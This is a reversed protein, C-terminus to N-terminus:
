NSSTLSSHTAKGQLTGNTNNGDWRVYLQYTGPNNIGIQYTVEPPITPASGASLDDPLTQIYGSGRFNTVIPGGDTISTGSNEGPKITWNDGATGTRSTFTEAEGVAMGGNEWFILAAPSSTASAALAAACLIPFRLLKM